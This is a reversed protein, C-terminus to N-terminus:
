CVFFIYGAMRGTSRDQWMCCENLPLKYVTGSVVSMAVQWMWGATCVGGSVGHVAVFEGDDLGGVCERGDFEAAQDRVAVLGVLISEM